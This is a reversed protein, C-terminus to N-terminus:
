NVSAHSICFYIIFNLFLLFSTPIWRWTSLKLKILWPGIRFYLRCKRQLAISLRQLWAFSRKEGTQEQIRQGLTRLFAWSSDGISGLTEIAGPELIYCSQIDNYHQRNVAEKATAVSSGEQRGEPLHSAALHHVCTFNWALSRGRYWPLMTVVDPRRGDNWSVLLNWHQHSAPVKWPSQHCWQGNSPPHIEVQDIQM